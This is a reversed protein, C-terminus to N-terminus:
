LITFRSFECTAMKWIISHKDVRASEPGRQVADYLEVLSIKNGEAITLVEGTSLNRTEGTIGRKEAEQLVFYRFGVGQVKGAVRIEVREM